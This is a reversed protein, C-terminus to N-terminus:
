FLLPAHFIERAAKNYLVLDKNRTLGFAQPACGKM